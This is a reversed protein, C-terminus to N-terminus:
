RQVGPRGLMGWEGGRCTDGWLAITILALGTILNACAENPSGATSSATWSRLGAQAVLSTDQRSVGM